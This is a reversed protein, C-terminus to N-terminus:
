SVWFFEDGIFHHAPGVHDFCRLEFDALRVRDQPAAQM